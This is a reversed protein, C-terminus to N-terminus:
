SEVGKVIWYIIQGIGVVLCIGLVAAGLIQLLEDM